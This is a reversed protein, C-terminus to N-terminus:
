PTMLSDKLVYINDDASPDIAYVAGNPGFKPLFPQQGQASYAGGVLQHQSDFVQTRGPQCSFIYENGAGDVTLLCMNSLEGYGFGTTGWRDVIKGSAPDLSPRRRCRRGVRHSRGAAPRHARHVPLRRAQAVAFGGDPGFKTLTGTPDDGVYVSGDSDVAILRTAQFQGDQTGFSGMQRIFTGDPTFVQVRHNSGDAVYVTGDKGVAIDGTGPNGAGSLDRLDFEGEGAGQRGWTRVVEGTAPDIVNVSPKCTSCTSSGTRDSM